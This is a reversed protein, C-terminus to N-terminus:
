SCRLWIPLILNHVPGSLDYIKIWYHLFPDYDGSNLDSHHIRIQKILKEDKKEASPEKLQRVKFFGKGDKVKADKRVNTLMTDKRTVSSVNLM